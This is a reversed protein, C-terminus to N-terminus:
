SPEEERLLDLFVNGAGAPSSNKTKEQQLREVCWSLIARYDDQYRKGSAGKYNDLLEILRETDAPGHTALLTDHQANTMFVHEAWQVKTAQSPPVVPPNSDTEEERDKTGTGVEKDSAKQRSNAKRNSSTQKPKAEARGGMQGSEAKKRNTDLVPKILSFLAAPVNALPLEEGDLAYACLAMLTAAQDEPCLRTVSEYFSRYFTFSRRQEM